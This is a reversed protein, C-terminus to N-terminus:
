ILHFDISYQKFYCIKSFINIEYEFFLSYFNLIERKLYTINKETYEFGEPIKLKNTCDWSQKIEIGKAINMKRKIIFKFIKRAKYKKYKRQIKIAASAKGDVFKIDALLIEPEIYRCYCFNTGM